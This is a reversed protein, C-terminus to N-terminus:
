FRRKPAVTKIRDYPKRNDSAKWVWDGDVRDVNDLKLRELAELYQSLILVVDSNTPVDDEEFLAFDSFPRHSSGLLQNSQGLLTNVLRLKFTNLAENPSKKSLVAIEEYAGNLQIVLKEFNEIQAVKMATM